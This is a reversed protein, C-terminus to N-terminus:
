SSMTEKKYVVEGDIMTLQVELDKIKDKAVDLIRDNLVVLDALKGEEISGKIHEEFSAYAGNLTYLRIADLLSIRQNPGYIDNNRIKRTVAGWIGQLPSYAPMCPLDSGAAPKIQHSLWDKIPHMVREGYFKKYADGLYAYFGPNPSTIIGLERMKVLQDPQTLGAHEIRHRHPRPYQKLAKEISNLMIDIARDGNAHATLQFGKAHAEIFIEDVEKQTYFLTGHDDPRHSYGERTAINPGASGGDIFIKVPGFKFKDNGLGTVMGADIAKKIVHHPKYLSTVFAWVRSKLVGSNSALQMLRFDSPGYGGAEHLTTIGYSLLEEQALSLGKLLVEDSPRTKQFMEFHANEILLGTLKGSEDREIIGGVPDPTTEDMGALALAKSNVISKHLCTRMVFIPHQDSVRDLEHRMPLRKEVIENEFFNTAIIWEGPPTRKVVKELKNFLDALSNINSDRCDVTVKTLAHAILHLHADIFGPLLSNGNLDIVETQNDIYLGVQRNDGVKLIKNDKIAVAEAIRNNPDVTIVQGNKFVIDAGLCIKGGKLVNNLNLHLHIFTIRKQKNM